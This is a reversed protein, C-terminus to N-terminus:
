YVRSNKKYYQSFLLTYQTTAQEGPKLPFSLLNFVYINVLVSSTGNYRKYVEEKKIKKELVYMEWVWQVYKLLSRLSKTATYKYVCSKYGTIIVETFNLNVNDKTGYKYLNVLLVTVYVYLMRIM